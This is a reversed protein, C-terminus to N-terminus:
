IRPRLLPRTMCSQGKVYTVFIARGQNMLLFSVIAENATVKDEADGLQDAEKGLASSQGSTSDDQGACRRTNASGLVGLLKNLSAILEGNLQKRVNTSEDVLNLM